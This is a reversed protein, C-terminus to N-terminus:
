DATETYLLKSLIPLAAKFDPYAQKTLESLVQAISKKSRLMIVIDGAAPNNRMVGRGPNSCLTMVSSIPRHETTLMLAKPAQVEPAVVPKANILWHLVNLIHTKTLAGTKLAFEVATLMDQDDHQLVLGPFEVKERDGVLKKLM